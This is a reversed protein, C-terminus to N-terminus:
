SALPPALELMHPDLEDRTVCRWEEYYARWVGHAAEANQPPIFRTFITREPAYEVLRAVHPMVREMWPTAWPAGPCFLNQMDICLHVANPGIPSLLAGM